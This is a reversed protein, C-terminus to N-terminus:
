VIVDSLRRPINKTLVESGRDTVLVMDEIRIGSWHQFYVGPEITVIQGPLVMDVSKPGLSPPEHIVKGVGHGTSHIFASQLGAARLSGRVVDDISKGSVFPVTARVGRKHAELVALYRKRLLPSPTGLIFTRTLDSCFGGVKIGLDVVVADGLRLKRRTPSHHMFTASPGSAIIFPFSPQRRRFVWRLHDRVELETRGVRLIEPVHRMGQELERVATRIAIIKRLKEVDDRHIYKKALQVDRAIRRVLASQTRYWVLPRIRNILEVIMHQGYFGADVNLLHTEFKPQRHVDPVGVISVGGYQQGNMWVRSAFVGRSQPNTQFYKDDLNATPYGIKLGQGDGHIVRGYLLKQRKM